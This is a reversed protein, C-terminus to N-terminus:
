DAIRAVAAQQARELQDAVLRALTAEIRRQAQRVAQEVGAVAVAQDEAREAVVDEAERRRQGEAFVLERLHGHAQLLREVVYDRCTVHARRRGSRRGAGSACDANRSERVSMTVPEKLSSRRSRRMRLWSCFFPRM